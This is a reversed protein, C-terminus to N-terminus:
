IPDFLRPTQREAPVQDQMLDVSEQVLEVSKQMPEVCEQMVEVAERYSTWSKDVAGIDTRKAVQRALSRSFKLLVYLLYEPTVDEPHRTLAVTITGPDIEYTKKFYRLQHEQYTRPQRGAPTPAISRRSM